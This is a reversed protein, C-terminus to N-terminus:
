WLLGEAGDWGILFANRLQGPPYMACAELMRLAPHGSCAFFSARGHKRALERQNPKMRAPSEEMRDKYWLFGGLPIGPPEPDRPM